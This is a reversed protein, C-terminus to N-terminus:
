CSTSAIYHIIMVRKTVIVHHFQASLLQMIEKHLADNKVFYNSVFQLFNLKIIGPYDNKFNERTAYHDLTSLQTIINNNERSLKRSGELSATLVNFSSSFFTLSLLQHMVEQVSM